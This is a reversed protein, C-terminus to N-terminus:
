SQFFVVVRTSNSLPILWVAPRLLGERYLSRM